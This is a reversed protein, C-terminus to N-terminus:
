LGKVAKLQGEVFALKAKLEANQALLNSIMQDKIDPSSPDALVGDKLEFDSYANQIKHLTSRHFSMTRYYNSVQESSVGLVRGVETDNYGRKKVYEQFIRGQHIM